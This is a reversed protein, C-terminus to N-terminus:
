IEFEDKYEVWAVIEDNEVSLSIPILRSGEPAQGSVREGTKPDFEAFHRQCRFTAGQLQLPGGAHTCFNVYAKLAGRDNYVIGNQFGYRFVKSAGPKLEDLKAVFCKVRKAM